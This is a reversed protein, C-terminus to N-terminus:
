KARLKFEQLKPRAVEDVQREFEEPSKKGRKMQWQGRFLAVENLYEWVKEVKIDDVV